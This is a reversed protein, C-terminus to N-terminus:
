GTHPGQGSVPRSLWRHLTSRHVGLARAAASVNGGHAQLAQDVATRTLEALGGGGESGPRPDAVPAAAAVVPITSAQSLRLEAPLDAPAIPVGPEALAALTRLTAHLQRWNGPWAHM